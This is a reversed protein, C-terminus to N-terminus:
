IILGTTAFKNCLATETGKLDCDCELHFIINDNDLFSTSYNLPHERKPLSMKRICIINGLCKPFMYFGSRCQDCKQGGFNSKCDCKGNTVCIDNKSGIENCDCEPLFKKRFIKYIM